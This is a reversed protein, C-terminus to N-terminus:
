CQQVSIRKFTNLDGLFLCWSPILHTLIKKFLSFVQTLSFPSLLWTLCGSHLHSLSPQHSPRLSVTQPPGPLLVLQRLLGMSGLEPRSEDTTSQSGGHCCPGQLCADSSVPSCCCLELVALCLSVATRQRWLAEPSLGEDPRLTHSTGDSPNENDM